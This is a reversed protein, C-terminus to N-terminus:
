KSITWTYLDKTVGNSSYKLNITGTAVKYNDNTLIFYYEGNGTSKLTGM